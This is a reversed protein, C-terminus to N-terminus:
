NEMESPMTLDEHSRTIYGDGLESEDAVTEGPSDGFEDEDDDEIGDQYLMYSEMYEANVGYDVSVGKYLKM